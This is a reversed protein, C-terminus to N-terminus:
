GQQAREADDLSDYGGLLVTWGVIQTTLNQGSAALEAM